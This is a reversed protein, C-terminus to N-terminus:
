GKSGITVLYEGCDALIAREAFKLDSTALRCGRDIALALYVCDQVAHRLRVSLDFAAPILDAFPVLEAVFRPVAELSAVAQERPLGHYRVKKSLASAVELMILDPAAVADVETLLARAELTNAERTLVKVLVSADAILM